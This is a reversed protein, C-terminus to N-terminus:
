RPKWKGVILALCLNCLAWVYGWSNV